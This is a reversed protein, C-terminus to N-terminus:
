MQLRIKTGSDNPFSSLHLGNVREPHTKGQLRDIRQDPRHCAGIREPQKWETFVGNKTAPKFDPQAKGELQGRLNRITPQSM